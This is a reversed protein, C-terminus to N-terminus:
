AAPQPEGLLGATRGRAPGAAVRRGLQHSRRPTALAVDVIVVRGLAKGPLLIEGFLDPPLIEVLGDFAAELAFDPLPQAIEFLEPRALAPLSPTRGWGEGDRVQAPGWYVGSGASGRLLAPSR